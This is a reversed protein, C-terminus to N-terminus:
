AQCPTAFRAAIDMEGAVRPAFALRETPPCFDTSIGAKDGRPDIRYWGHRQLFVSVLGHLCFANGREDLALRQYCLAAPVGRARLLAALLHSKAFCFGVRHKLVESASCTVTPIEGDSSHRVNDRVWLFCRRAIVEDDSADGALVAALDVVPAADSDIVHTPRLYENM